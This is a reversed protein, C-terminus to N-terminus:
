RPEIAGAPAAARLGACPQAARARLSGPLERLRSARAGGCADPRGPRRQALAAWVAAQVAARLLASSPVRERPDRNLVSLESDPRFRSLRAAFDEVYAQEREAAAAPSPVSGTLPSGIVLRVDSGMSHFTLDYEYSM